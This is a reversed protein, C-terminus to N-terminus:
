YIGISRINIIYSNNYNGGDNGLKKIEKENKTFFLILFKGGNFVENSQSVKTEIKLRDVTIDLEKSSNLETANSQSIAAELKFRTGNVM